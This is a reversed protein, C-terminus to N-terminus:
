RDDLPRLGREGWPPRFLLLPSLPHPILPGEQLHTGEM